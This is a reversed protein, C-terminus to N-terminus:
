GERGCAPGPTQDQTACEVVFRPASPKPATWVSYLGARFQSPVARASLEVWPSRPRLRGPNRPSEEGKTLLPQLNTTVYPCCPSMAVLSSKLGESLYLYIWLFYPGGTCDLRCEREISVKSLISILEFIKAGL